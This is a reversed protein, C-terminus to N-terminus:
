FLVSFAGGAIQGDIMSSMITELFLSLNPYNSDKISQNDRVFYKEWSYNANKDLCGISHFESENFAKIIYISKQLKIETERLQM